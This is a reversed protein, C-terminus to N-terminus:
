ICKFKLRWVYWIALLLASHRTFWGSNVKKKQVKDSSREMFYFSSNIQAIHFYPTGESLFCGKSGVVTVSVSRHVPVWGPCTAECGHAQVARSFGLRIGLVWRARSVKLVWTQNRAGVQSQERRGIAWSWLLWCRQVGGACAQLKYCMKFFLLSVEEVKRPAWAEEVNSQQM